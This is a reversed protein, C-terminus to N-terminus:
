NGQLKPNRLQPVTAKTETIYTRKGNLMYYLHVSYTGADGKHVTAKDTQSVLNM